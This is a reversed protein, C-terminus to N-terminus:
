RLRGVVSFQLAGLFSEDGVYISSVCRCMYVLHLSICVGVCEIM